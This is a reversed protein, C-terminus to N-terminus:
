APPLPFLRDGAIAVCAEGPAPSVLALGTLRGFAPLLARRPGLLFCPLRVADGRGDALRVGPHVHGCLVYGPAPDHPEHCCLFPAADHPADVV